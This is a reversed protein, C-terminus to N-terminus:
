GASDIERSDCQAALALVAQNYGAMLESAAADGVRSKLQTSDVLDTFVLCLRNSSSVANPM